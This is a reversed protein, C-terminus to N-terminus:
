TGNMPATESIKLGFIEYVAVGGGGLHEFDRVGGKV